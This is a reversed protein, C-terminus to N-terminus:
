RDGDPARQQLAQHAAAVVEGAPPRDDPSGPRWLTHVVGDVVVADGGLQRTDEQTPTPRWRRRRWARAYVALTAPTYVRWWPARGIGLRQYLARDPDSLVPGTWGLRRAIAALRDVPSFGILALGIRPDAGQRRHEQHV